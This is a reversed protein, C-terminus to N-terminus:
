PACTVGAPFIEPGYQPSVTTSFWLQDAIRGEVTFSPARTLVALTDIVSPLDDCARTSATALSTLVCPAQSRDVSCGSPSCGWGDVGIQMGVQWVLPQDLRLTVQNTCGMVVCPAPFDSLLTGDPLTAPLKLTAEGWWCSM